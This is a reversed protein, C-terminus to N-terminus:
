LNRALAEKSKKILELIKDYCDICIHKKVVKSDEPPSFLLAAGPDAIDKSCMDCNIHLSM